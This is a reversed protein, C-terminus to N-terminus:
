IQAFGGNVFIESGAVFGSEDCTLFAVVNAIDEDRGVGPEHCATRRL